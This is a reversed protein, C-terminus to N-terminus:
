ITGNNQERTVGGKRLTILAKGCMAAVQVMEGAARYARVLMMELCLLQTEPVDDKVATWYDHFIKEFEAREDKAEELEEKIVGYAQHSSNFVNGCKTAARSYEEEACKEVDKLVELFM